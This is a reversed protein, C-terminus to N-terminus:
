HKRAGNEELVVELLKRVKPTLAQGERFKVLDKMLLKLGAESLGKSLQERRQQLKKEYGERDEFGLAV